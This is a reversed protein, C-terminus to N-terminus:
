RDQNAILTFPAWLNPNAWEATWGPLPSGDPRRGTRVTHMALQLAQARTLKPDAGRLALTETTLVATVEDDVSWHTAMLSGAGAYLFGQALSSLGEAGSHGDPTATNCASLIVFDANLRLEAAESATLVGDDLLSPAQPPTFVLGGENLGPVVGPLVGHTAFAIVRARRLAEDQKVGAETAQPGLRILSAPAGLTRAMSALEHSPGELPPFHTRIWKPDALPLHNEFGAVAADTTEFAGTPGRGPGSQGGLVPAGYGVFPVAAITQEAATPGGLGAPDDKKSAAGL